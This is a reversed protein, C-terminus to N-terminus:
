PANKQLNGSFLLFPASALKFPASFFICRRLRQLDASLLFTCSGLRRLVVSRFSEAAYDSCFQASFFNCRRLKKIVASRFFQLKQKCQTVTHVRARFIKPSNEFPAPERFPASFILVPLNQLFICRAFLGFFNQMFCRLLEMNSMRILQFQFPPPPIRANKDDFQLSFIASNENKGM